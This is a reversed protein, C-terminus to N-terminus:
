DKKPPKEEKSVIEERESVSRMGGTTMMTKSDDTNELMSKVGEQKPVDRCGAGMVRVRFCVEKGSKM